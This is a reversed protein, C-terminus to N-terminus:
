QPNTETGELPRSVLPLFGGPGILTNVRGSKQILPFIQVIHVRYDADGCLVTAHICRPSDQFAHGRAQAQPQLSDLGAGSGEAQPEWIAQQKTQQPAATARLGDPIIGCSCV